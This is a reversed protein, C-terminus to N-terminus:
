IAGFRRDRKKFEEVIRALETECFDPWLTESFFLEAYASQWLLFNSLRKEGGTRILLDVPPFYKTDLNANISDITIESQIQVIKKVARTIEDQSGYNIALIQTLSKNEKTRDRLNEIAINLKKSFRSTDGIVEFKVDNIMYADLEKTLYSELLKMLFDVETKPRNWNETSFAYLTLYEIGDVKSCYETLRRVTNAGEKHGETRIKGKFKAWRGNGDMIIAIHKAQNKKM